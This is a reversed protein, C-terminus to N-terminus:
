YRVEVIRVTTEGIIQMLRYPSGAARGQKVCLMTADPLLTEISPDIEYCIDNKCVSVWAHFRPTDHRLSLGYCIETQYGVAELLHRLVTARALSDGRKEELIAEVSVPWMPPGQTINDLVWRALSKVRPNEPAQMSLANQIAREVPRSAELSPVTKSEAGWPSDTFWDTERSRQESRLFYFGSESDYTQRRSTPLQKEPMIDVALNSPWPPGDVTGTMEPFLPAKEPQGVGYAWNTLVLELGLSTRERTVLGSNDVWIFTELDGHSMVLVCGGPPEPPLIDSGCRALSVEQPQMSLPDFVRWTLREGPEPCVGPLGPLFGDSVTMTSDMPLINTPLAGLGVYDLSIVGGDAQGRIRSTKGLMDLELEFSSLTGDADLMAFGSAKAAGETRSTFGLNLVWSVSRGSLSMFNRYVLDGIPEQGHQIDYRLEGQFYNVLSSYSVQRSTTTPRSITKRMLWFASALWFVAIGVGVLSFILSGYRKLIVM